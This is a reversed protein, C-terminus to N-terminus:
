AVQVESKGAPGQVWVHGCAICQYTDAKNVDSTFALYRPHPASCHPCPPLALPQSIVDGRPLQHGNSTSRLEVM